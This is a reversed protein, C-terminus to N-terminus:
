RFQGSVPQIGTVAGKAADDGLMGVGSQHLLVIRTISPDM